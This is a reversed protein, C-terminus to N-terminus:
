WNKQALFEDAIKAVTNFDALMQSHFGVTGRAENFSHTMVPNFIGLADQREDLEQYKRINRQRLAEDKQETLDRYLAENRKLVAYPPVYLPIRHALAHRFDELYEFWPEITALYNVFDIDLSKRFVKNDFSVFRRDSDKKIQTPSKELQWIWALNDVCGFVNFIFSQLNITIDLVTDRDPIDSREPPYLFYVNRVCKQLVGLRRVFGHYAYEQSKSNAFRLLFQSMLREYKADINSLEDRLTRITETSFAM